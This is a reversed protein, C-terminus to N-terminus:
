LFSDIEKPQKYFTEVNSLAKELLLEYDFLNEMNISKDLRPKTVPNKPKFITCCDEFPLISTEFTNIEKAKDIIDLKDFTVIPRIIPMKCVENIVSMSELTQSAVQGLSEGTAIALCKNKIALREALRVMMRRMITIAYSEHCKAYIEMQLETFNVIHVKMSGQYISVIKALELVKDQASQSTYPPSSFHVAEVEIGRKMIYYAAVPSDIGGSLLLMVKGNIGTPYGGAGEIKKSTIFTNEEQVEIQLKIDPNHVDVKLNTSSLIKGAVHRNIEDSRYMFNKDHRRTIVKFTEGKENELLELCTSKIEELDSKVKITFSFSSIGFIKKLRNELEEINEGNIKIYIRDYTSKFELKELDKLARKINELLKRIFQNRNKGKTSLEGYRILVTDYVVM